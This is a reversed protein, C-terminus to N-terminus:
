LGRRLKKENGEYGLLQLVNHVENTVKDLKKELRILRTDAQSVSSSSAEQNAELQEQDEVEHSLSNISVNGVSISISSGSESDDEEDTAWLKKEVELLARRVVKAWAKETFHYMPFVLHFQALLHQRDAQQLDDRTLLWVVAARSKLSQKRAMIFAFLKRIFIFSDDQNRKIQYIQM